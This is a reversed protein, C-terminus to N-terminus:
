LFESLIEGLRCLEISGPLVPHLSPVRVMNRTKLGQGDWSEANWVCDRAHAVPSHSFRSGRRRRMWWGRGGSDAAAGEDLGGMRGM